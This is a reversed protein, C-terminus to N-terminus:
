LNFDASNRLSKTVENLLMTVRNDQPQNYTKGCHCCKYYLHYADFFKENIKNFEAQKLYEHNFVTNEKENVFVEKNMFNIFRESYQGPPCASLQSADVRKFYIKLFREAKKEFTYQTLYDIISVHYKYRGCKSLFIHRNNAAKYRLNEKVEPLKSHSFVTNTNSSEVSISPTERSAAGTTNFSLLNQNKQKVQLASTSSMSAKLSEEDIDGVKEVALLISYDLYKHDKLFLSDTFINDKLDSLYVQDFQLLGKKMRNLRYKKCTLLNGDKLTQKKNPKKRTFRAVLSGKLDYHKLGFDNHAKVTNAM